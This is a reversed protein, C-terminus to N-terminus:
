AIWYGRTFLMTNLFLFIAFLVLVIKYIKDPLKIAMVMFAPFLILVFRGMSLFTGTLTPIIYAILSFLLYSSRIKLKYGWLLLGLFIMSSLFEQTVTYSVMSTLDITLFIKIYRYIVQYLLIFNDSSRGAGFAEQANFFYLPDSYNLYLFWMYCILGLSGLSLSLFSFIIRLNIYKHTIELFKEYFLPLLLLVGIIRTGSAVASLLIAETQYGKRLAYFFAV